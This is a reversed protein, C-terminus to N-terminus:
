EQYLTELNFLTCKAKAFYCASWLGECFLMCELPRRLIFKASWNEGFCFLNQVGIRVSAFYCKTSWNAGFCFLNQVGIRVSAFYIKCELECRLLIFKASWNTGFCFLNQVGIRVSAFYIKCELEYRLLIFKASWNAGFCFLNQV